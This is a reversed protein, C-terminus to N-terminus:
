TFFQSSGTTSCKFFYTRKIINVEVIVVGWVVVEEVVETESVVDVRAEDVEAVELIESENM